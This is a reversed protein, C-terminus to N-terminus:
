PPFIRGLRRIQTASLWARVASVSCRSLADTVGLPVFTFQGIGGESTVAFLRAAMTRVRFSSVLRRILAANVFSPFPM